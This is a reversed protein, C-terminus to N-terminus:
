RKRSACPRTSCDMPKACGTPSRLFAPFAPNCRRLTRRGLEDPIAGAAASAVLIAAFRSSALLSGDAGAIQV